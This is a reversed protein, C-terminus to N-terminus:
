AVRARARCCFVRCCFLGSVCSLFLVGFGWVLVEWLCKVVNSPHSFLTHLCPACSVLSSLTHLHPSFVHRFRRSIHLCPTLICHSGVPNLTLGPNVRVWYASRLLFYPIKNVNLRNKHICSGQIHVPEQRIVPNVLRFVTNM